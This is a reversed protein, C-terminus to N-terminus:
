HQGGVQQRGAVEVVLEGPGARVRDGSRQQGVLADGGDQEVAVVGREGAPGSRGSPRQPAHSWPRPGVERAGPRATGYGSLSLVAGASATTDQSTSTRDPTSSATHAVARPRESPNLRRAGDTTKPTASTRLM